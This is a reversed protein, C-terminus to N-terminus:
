RASFIKKFVLTRATTPNFERLIKEYDIEEEITEFKDKWEGILRATMSYQIRPYYFGVNCLHIVYLEQDTISDLHFGSAYPSPDRVEDEIIIKRIMEILEITTKM